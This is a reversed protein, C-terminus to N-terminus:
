SMRLTTFLFAAIGGVLILGSFVVAVTALVAAESKLSVLGFVLGLIGGAAAGALFGFPPFAVAFFAPLIVVLVVAAIALRTKTQEHM